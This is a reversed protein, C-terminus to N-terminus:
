AHLSCPRVSFSIKNMLFNSPNYLVGSETLSYFNRIQARSCPHSSAVCVTALRHKQLECCPGWQKECLLRLSKTCLSGVLSGAPIVWVHGSMGLVREALSCLTVEAEKRKHKLQIIGLLGQQELSCLGNSHWSKATMSKGRGILPLMLICSAGASNLTQSLSVKGGTFITGTPIM